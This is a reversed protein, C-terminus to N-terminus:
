LSITAEASAIIKVKIITDMDLRIKAGTTPLRLKIDLKMDGYDLVNGNFQIENVSNRSSLVYFYENPVAPYTSPSLAGSAIIPQFTDPSPIQDSGKFTFFANIDFPLNSNYEFEMKFNKLKEAPIDGIPIAQDDISFLLVGPPVINIIRGVISFDSGLNLGMVFHLTYTDPGAYAPLAPNNDLDFDITYDLENPNGTNTLDLYYQQIPDLFNTSTYVLVNNQTVPTGFFCNVNEILVQNINICDSNISLTAGTTNNTLWIRLELLDTRTAYYGELTIDSGGGDIDIDTNIAINGTVPMILPDFVIPWQVLPGVPIDPVTIALSKDEVYNELSIPETDKEFIPIRAEVDWITKFDPDDVIKKLDALSCSFAIIISLIIIFIFLTKKNLFRLM